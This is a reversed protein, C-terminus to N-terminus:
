RSEPATKINQFCALKNDAQQLLEYVRSRKLKFIVCLQRITMSFYHRGVFLLRSREDLSFLPHLVEGLIKKEALMKSGYINEDGWDYQEWPAEMYVIAPDDENQKDSLIEQVERCM